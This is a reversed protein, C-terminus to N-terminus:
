RSQKHRFADHCSKCSQSTTSFAQKLADLQGSSAAKSLGAAAQRFDVAEQQFRASDTWIEPRARTDGKDTGPVFGAWPLHALYAVVDAHLRAAAPDYSAKGTAMAGLPTMHAQMLSFASQRYAIAGEPKAFHQASAAAGSLLLVAAASLHFLRKM